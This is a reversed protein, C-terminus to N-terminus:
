CAHLQVAGNAHLNIDVRVTEESGRAVLESWNKCLWRDGGMQGRYRLTIM